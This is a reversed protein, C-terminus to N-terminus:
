TVELESILTYIAVRSHIFGDGDVTTTRDSDIVFGRGELDQVRGAPHSIGQRRREHTHRSGTRLLDLLRQIQAETATSRASCKSNLKKETGIKGPHRRAIDNKRTSNRM